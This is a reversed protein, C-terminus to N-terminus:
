PAEGETWEEAIKWVSDSDQLMDATYPYSRRWLNAKLSAEIRVGHLKRSARLNSFHYQGGAQRGTDVIMQAKARLQDIQLIGAKVAGSAHHITLHVVAARCYSDAFSPDYANILRAYNQFAQTAAEIDANEATQISDAAPSGTRRNAIWVGGGVGLAIVFIFALYIM